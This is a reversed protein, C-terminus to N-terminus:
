PTPLISVNFAEPGKETQRIQFEVQKGEQIQSLQQGLVDSRHFFVDKGDAKVIFGYGKRRNFWKVRGILKVEVGGEELPFEDIPVLRGVANASAGTTTRRAFGPKQAQEAREKRAPSVSRARQRCRPCLHPTVVNEEGLEEALRRQETVTFFFTQGCQECVLRQDRFVM